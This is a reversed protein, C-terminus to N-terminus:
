SLTISTISKPITISQLSSKYFSYQKIETISDGFQISKVRNFNNFCNSGISTISDGFVITEISSQYQQLDNKECDCMEGIGNITLVTGEQTTKDGEVKSVFIVAPRKKCKSCIMKNNM